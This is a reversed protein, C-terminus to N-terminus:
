EVWVRHVNAKAISAFLAIYYDGRYATLDFSVVQRGTTTCKTTALADTYSYSTKQNSVGLFFASTADLVDIDAYLTTMDVTNIKNQTYGAASRGRTGTYGLYMYTENLTSAGGSDTAFTWGGTLGSCTDGQNYLYITWGVWVGGQYIKATKDTWVGNTYQKAATPHLTISGAGLANFSVAGRDGTRIWVLGDAPTAPAAFSFAWGTIEVDTDVWITNEKPDSPSETGGVVEFNLGETDGGGGPSEFQGRRTIMLDAM